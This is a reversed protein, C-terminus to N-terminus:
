VDKKQAKGSCSEMNCWTDIGVWGLGVDWFISYIESGFKKM